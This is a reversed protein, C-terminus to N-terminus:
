EMEDFRRGQSRQYIRLAEALDTMGYVVSQEGDTDTFVIAPYRDIGAVQVARTLGEAAEQLMPALAEGQTKLRQTALRAAAEPDAPLGESLWDQVRTAGDIRYVAYRVSAPLETPTVPLAEITFVEIGSLQAAITTTCLLLGAFLGHLKSARPNM